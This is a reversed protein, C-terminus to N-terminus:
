STAIWAATPTTKGNLVTSKLTYTADWNAGTGCGFGFGSVLELAAGSATVTAPNGGTFSLSLGSSTPRYKCQFFGGCTVTTDTSATGNGKVNLTGNGTDTTPTLGGTYGSTTSVTCATGGNTKCETFTVDTVEGPLSTAGSEATQKLIVTSHSCSVTSVVGSGNVTLVANTSTSHYETGSPYKGGECVGSKNPAAKCMVAASATSAGVVAALALAAVAALGLMKLYKM